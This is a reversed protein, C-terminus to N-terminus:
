SADVVGLWRGDGSARTDYYERIELSQKELKGTTTELAM